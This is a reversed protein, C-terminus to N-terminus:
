GRANKLVAVRRGSLEAIAEQLRMNAAALEDKEQRLKYTTVTLDTLNQRLKAETRARKTYVWFLLIVSLGLAAVAFWTLMAEGEIPTSRGASWQKYSTLTISIAQLGQIWMKAGEGPVPVM